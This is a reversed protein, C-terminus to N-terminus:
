QVARFLGGMQKRIEAAKVRNAEIQEPTLKQDDLLQATQAIAPSVIPADQQTPHHGREEPKLWAAELGQSGRRCWVRLFAELSMGAKSSEARAGKIVTETVPARKAKRLKLWDQWVEDDVDHPCAIAQSRKARDQRQRQLAETETEPVADRKCDALLDSAEQDLFFFGKDILPKLADILEQETMRLRFAIKKPEADISGDVSDSALLWLMPALARSAVPLCQFEYNDLLSKHLRIWPPNRDKYHQFERWDKPTLRAM